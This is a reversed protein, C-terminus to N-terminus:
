YYWCQDDVSHDSISIISDHSRERESSLDLVELLKFSMWIAWNEEGDELRATDLDATGEILDVAKTGKGPATVVEVRKIAKYRAVEIAGGM